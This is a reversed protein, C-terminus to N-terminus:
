TQDDTDFTWIIGQNTTDSSTTATRAVAIVADVFGPPYQDLRPLALAALVADRDDFDIEPDLSSAWDFVDMDFNMREMQQITMGLMEALQATTVATTFTITM